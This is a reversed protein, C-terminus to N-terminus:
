DEPHQTAQRCKGGRRDGAADVAHFDGISQHEGGSNSERRGTNAEFQPILIDM